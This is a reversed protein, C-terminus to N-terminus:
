RDRGCRTGVVGGVHPSHAVAAVRALRRLRKAARGDVVDLAALHLAVSRAVIEGARVKAQIGDGEDVVEFPVALRQQPVFFKAFFGFPLLEPMEELDKIRVHLAADPRLLKALEDIIVNKPSEGAYRFRAPGDEQLNDIM